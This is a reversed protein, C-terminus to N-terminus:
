RAAIPAGDSSAFGFQVPRLIQLGVVASLTDPIRITRVLDTSGDDWRALRVQRTADDPPLALRLAVRGVKTMTVVVTGDSGTVLQAGDDIRLLPLGPTAPVTSITLQVPTM